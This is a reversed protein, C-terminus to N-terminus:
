FRGEISPMKEASELGQASKRREKGALLALIQPLLFAEVADLEAPSIAGEAGFDGLVTVELKRSGIEKKM